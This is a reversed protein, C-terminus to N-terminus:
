MLACLPQASCPGKFVVHAKLWFWADAFVLYELSSGPLVSISYCINRPGTWELLERLLVIAGVVGGWFKVNRLGLQASQNVSSLLLFPDPLVLGEVHMERFCPHKPNNQLMTAELCIEQMASHITGVRWSVIIVYTNAKMKGLGVKNKRWEWQRPNVGEWLVNANSGQRMNQIPSIWVLIGVDLCKETCKICLTLM